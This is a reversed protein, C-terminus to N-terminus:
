TLRYELSKHDSHNLFFIDLLHAGGRVQIVNYRRGYRKLGGAGAGEHAQAREVVLPM